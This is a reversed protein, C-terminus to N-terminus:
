CFDARLRSVPTSAVYQNHTGQTFHCVIGKGLYLTANYYIRAIEYTGRWNRGIESVIWAKVMRRPNDHHKNFAPNSWISRALASKGATVEQELVNIKIFATVARHGRVFQSHIRPVEITLDGCEALTHFLEYASKSSRHRYAAERASESMDQHMSVEQTSQNVLYQLRKFGKRGVWEIMLNTITLRDSRKIPITLEGNQGMARTFAAFFALTMEKVQELQCEGGDVAMTPLLVGDTSSEDTDEDALNDAYLRADRVMRSKSGYKGKLYDMGKEPGDRQLVNRVEEIDASYDDLSAEEDSADLDLPPSDARDKAKKM